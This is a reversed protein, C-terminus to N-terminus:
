EVGGKLLELSEVTKFEPECMIFVISCEECEEWSLFEVSEETGITRLRFDDEVETTENAELEDLEDLEDMSVAFDSTSSTWIREVTTLEHM